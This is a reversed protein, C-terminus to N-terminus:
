DGETDSVEIVRNLLQAADVKGTDVYNLFTRSRWEGAELITGISAGNAALETARGARFAKFTFEGASETGLFALRKRLLEEREAALDIDDPQLARAKNHSPVTKHAM